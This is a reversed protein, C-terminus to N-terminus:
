VEPPQQGAEQSSLVQGIRDVVEQIGQKEVYIRNKFAEALDKMSHKRGTLTNVMKIDKILEPQPVYGYTVLMKSIKEKDRYSGYEESFAIDVQQELATMAETISHNLDKLNKIVELKETRVAEMNQSMAADIICSLKDNFNTGQPYANIFNLQTDTLRISKLNCKLDDYNAM